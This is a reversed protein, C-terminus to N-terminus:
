CYLILVHSSHVHLDCTYPQVLPFSRLETLSRRLLQTVYVIRNRSLDRSLRRSLYEGIRDLKQPNSLAYFTLKPMNNKM